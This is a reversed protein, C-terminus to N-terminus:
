TNYRKIAAIDIDKLFDEYWLKAFANETHYLLRDKGRAREAKIANNIGRKVIEESGEEGAIIECDDCFDNFQEFREYDKDILAGCAVCHRIINNM